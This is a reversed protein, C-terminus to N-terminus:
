GVGHDGGLHRAAGGDLELSPADGGEDEGRHVERHGLEAVRERARDAEGRFGGGGEHAVEAGDEGPLEARHGERVDVHLGLVHLDQPLRHVLRLLRAGVDDEGVDGLLPPGVGQARVEQGAVVRPGELGREHHRGGGLHHPLLGADAEGGHVREKGGELFAGLGEHLCPALVGVEAVGRGGGGLLALGEELREGPDQGQRHHLEPSALRLTTPVVCPAEASRVPSVTAEAGAGGMMSARLTSFNKAWGSPWRMWTIAVVSMTTDGSWITARSPGEPDPLDVRSRMRAPRARGEAPSTSHCPEGSPWCIGFTATTKWLKARKGQSVTRWFTSAGSRARSRRGISRWLRARRM